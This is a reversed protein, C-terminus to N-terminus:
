NFIDLWEKDVVFRAIPGAVYLEWYPDTPQPFSLGVCVAAIIEAFVASAPLEIELELECETISPSIVSQRKLNLYLSRAHAIPRDRYSDYLDLIRHTKLTSFDIASFPM